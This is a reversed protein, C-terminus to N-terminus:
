LLLCLYVPIHLGESRGCVAPAAHVAFFEEDMRFKNRLFIVSDQSTYMKSIAQWQRHVLHLRRDNKKSFPPLAVTSGKWPFDAIFAAEGRSGIESIGWSQTLTPSDYQIFAILKTCKTKLIVDFSLFTRKLIAIQSLMSINKKVEIIFNYFFINNENDSCNNSKLM